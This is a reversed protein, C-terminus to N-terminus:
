LGTLVGDKSRHGSIMFGVDSGRPVEFGRRIGEGIVSSEEGTRRLILCNWRRRLYWVGGRKMWSVCVTKVQSLYSQGAFARVKGKQEAPM